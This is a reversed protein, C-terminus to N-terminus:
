LSTPYVIDKGRHEPVVELKEIKGSKFDCAVTTHNGAYLKFSVDWDKPWAPLLYIQDGETQLLMMQLINTLNGGHDGDPVADYAPGWMAPFRHGPNKFACNNVLIEETEKAMGLLATVMGIYQWGAYSAYKPTNGILFPRFADSLECSYRFTDQILRQDGKYHTYMRFPYVPYLHPSEVNRRKNEYEEAPAIVKNGYPDDEFTVPPIITQFREFFSRNYVLEPQLSLIENTVAHMGSVVTIPNTTDHYTEVCQLKNLLIKGDKRETFRTEVYHLLDEAYPLIEKQLFERDRTYNYYDLMMFVLELGPSIDVAGGARNVAYGDKLGERPYGYVRIPQLGFTNTMETNFQGEAQYYVKARVKNIDWFQRYYAFLSKVATFEGRALMPAYLLRQNQWLNICYEWGKEDPNIELNPQGIPQASYTECMDKLGLHRNLGPMLNFILGNFYAPVKGLSACAFMFKTLIYSQTVKSPPPTNDQPELSVAVIDEPVPAIVERDGKVFIYSNTFYQEWHSATRKAAEEV